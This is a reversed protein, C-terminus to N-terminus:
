SSIASRYVGTYLASLQCSPACHCVTLLDVLGGHGLDVAAARCRFCVRNGEAAAHGGADRPQGLDLPLHRLRGCLHCLGDQAAAVDVPRHFVDLPGIQRQLLVHSGKQPLCPFGAGIKLRMVGTGGAAVGTVRFAVNAAAQLGQQPLLGAAPEALHGGHPEGREVIHVQVGIRIFGIGPQALGGAGPHPIHDGIAPVVGVM